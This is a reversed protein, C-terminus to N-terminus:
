NFHMSFKSKLTKQSLEIKLEFNYTGSQKPMQTFLLDFHPEFFKTQVDKIKSCFCTLQEYQGLLIGYDKMEQTLVDNQTAMYGNQIFNYPSSCYFKVIDAVNDGAKHIDDYDSESIIEISCISDNVVQYQRPMQAHGNWSTDSITKSLEAFEIPSSQETIDVGLLCAYAYPMVKPSDLAKGQCVTIIDANIYSDIMNKRGSSEYGETNETCNNALLCITLIIPYAYKM